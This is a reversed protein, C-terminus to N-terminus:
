STCLRKDKSIKQLERLKVKVDKVRSSRPYRKELDQLLVRADGCFKLEVFSQALLWMAEPQEPANKYTDLVKQFEAAAQTHKGEVAFSQGLFIQAQPARADQPFRQIFARFFRRADDRMGGNLRTQAERWLSEKDEPISPAVKDVIKNTTQEVGGLRAQQDNIRKQLDEILHKAEELQGTLAGLDTENKAVKTGLDASNRSLLGTAQDLVTRLRAVQENIEVDRRDMADVRERLQSIDARMKDGEGTTVCGSAIVVLVPVALSFRLNM